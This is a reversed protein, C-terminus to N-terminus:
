RRARAADLRALVAHWPLLCLFLPLMASFRVGMLLWISVQMSFLASFMLGFPLRGFLALPTALETALAGFALAKCLLPMTAIWVGVQTPPVHTFHHRLLLHQFSSSFAWDWGSRLLKSCGAATYMTAVLLAVFRMPWRYAGSQLTAQAGLRRLQQWRRTLWADISWADAARACAFIVLAIMILNEAHNVKGFNQPVGRLYLSAFAAVPASIPYLLGLLAFLTAVSAVVALAQLGTGDLLPVSWARFFSVPYWASSALDAFVAFDQVTFGPWAYWFILIRGIALTRADAPAFWARHQEDALRRLLSTM